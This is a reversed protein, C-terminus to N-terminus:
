IFASILCGHDHDGLCCLRLEFCCLRSRKLKNSLPFAIERSLEWSQQVRSLEWSKKPTVVLNCASNILHKFISCFQPQSNCQPIIDQHSFLCFYPFSFCFGKSALKLACRGELIPMQPDKQGFSGSSYLLTNQLSPCMRFGILFICRLLPILITSYSSM